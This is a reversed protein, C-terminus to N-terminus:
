QKPSEQFVPVLSIDDVWASGEANELPASSHRAICVTAVHADRPATWLLALRTWPATGHADQTEVFTVGNKGPVSIRLRIGEDTDIGKVLVWGSLRYSVGPEIIVFHCADAYNYNEKGSFVLRLSQRGSHKESRDLTALVGGRIRPIQWALGDGMLGSEFGGDWLVSGPPDPPPPNPMMAVAQQWVSQLEPLRTTQLLANTFPAVEEPSMHVHLAVLRQWVILAMDIQGSASLDRLIGVYADKSPPIVRDLIVQPDPEARWCRSFAEAARSPDTVLAARIEAFAHDLTDERLLFNGYSWAVEASSPYSQQASIFAGRAKGVQGQIEYATALNLWADALRPQLVLARQYYAIARQLDPSQLNYQWYRGLLYWNRPNAPELRVAREYGALTNLAVAHVAIASRIGYFCLASAALLAAVLVGARAAPSTFRLVM